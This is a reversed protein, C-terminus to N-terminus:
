RGVSGSSPSSPAPHRDTLSDCITRMEDRTTNGSFGHPPETLWVRLLLRPMRPAPDDHSREYLSQCTRELAGLEQHQLRPSGGCGGVGAVALVALVGGVIRRRM